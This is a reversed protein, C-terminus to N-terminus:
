REPSVCTFRQTDNGGSAASLLAFARHTVSGTAAARAGRREKGASLRAILGRQSLTRDRRHAWLNLPSMRWMEIGRALSGKQKMGTEGSPEAAGAEETEARRREDWDHDGTIGTPNHEREITSKLEKGIQLM